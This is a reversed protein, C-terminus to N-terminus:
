GAGTRTGRGRGCPTTTGRKSASAPTKRAHKLGAPTRDESTVSGWTTSWTKRKPTQATAAPAQSTHSRWTSVSRPPLRAQLQPSTNDAARSTRVPSGNQAGGGGMASHVNRAAVILPTQPAVVSNSGGINTSSLERVGASHVSSSQDCLGAQEMYWLRREEDFDHLLPATRGKQWWQSQQQQQQQASSEASSHSARKGDDWSDEIPAADQSLHGLHAVTSDPDHEAASTDQEGSQLLTQVQTRDLEADTEEYDFYDDNKEVTLKAEDLDDIDTSGVHWGRRWALRQAQTSAVQTWICGAEFPDFRVTSAEDEQDEAAAASLQVSPMSPPALLGQERESARAPERAPVVAPTAPWSVIDDDDLDAFDPGGVPAM